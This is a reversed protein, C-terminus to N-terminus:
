DSDLLAAMRVKNLTYYETLPKGSDANNGGGGTCVCVRGCFFFPPRLPSLYCGSTLQHLFPRTVRSIPVRTTSLLLIPRTTLDPVLGMRACVCVCVAAYCESECGKMNAAIDQVNEYTRM